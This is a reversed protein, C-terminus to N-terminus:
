CLSLHAATSRLCKSSLMESSVANQLVCNKDQGEEGWYNPHASYALSILLTQLFKYVSSLQSHNLRLVSIHAPTLAVKTM